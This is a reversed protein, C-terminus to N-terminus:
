ITQGILMPMRDARTMVNYYHNAPETLMYAHNRVVVCKIGEDVHFWRGRDVALEAVIIAPKPRLPTWLESEFWEINCWGVKPLPGQRCGWELIQLQGDVSVPLLRREHRYLFQIERGSAIDRQTIRDALAHRRILDIPIDRIPVAIGLCM